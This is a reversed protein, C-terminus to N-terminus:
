SYCLPMSCSKIGTCACFSFPLSKMSRQPAVRITHFFPHPSIPFHKGVFNAERRNSDEGTNRLGSDELPLSQGLECAGHALLNATIGESL